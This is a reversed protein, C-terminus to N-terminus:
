ESEFNYGFYEIDKRCKTAILQRSKDTYLDCYNKKRTENIISTSVIPFNLQRLLQLVDQELNEYSFINDVLLKGDKDSFYDLSNYHFYQTKNDIMADSEIFAELRAQEEALSKPDNKHLVSYWSVIRAWPNRTFGFTFYDRYQDFFGPALTAGNEHQPLQDLEGPLHRRIINTLM